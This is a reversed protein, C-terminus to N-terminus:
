DALEHLLAREIEVLLAPDDIKRGGEGRVYFSDVVGPGLTHVKASAIDLHLEALARTVRHLLGVSDPAHVEVVTCAESADNDIRVSPPSQGPVVRRHAGYVRAREALRAQLALRGDLALAVDDLVRDWSFTPGFSSEVRFVELAWGEV